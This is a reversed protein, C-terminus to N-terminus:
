AVNTACPTSKSSERTTVGTFNELDEPFTTDLTIGHAELGEQLLEDVCHKLFYSDEKVFYEVYFFILFYAFFYLFSLFLYPLRCFM